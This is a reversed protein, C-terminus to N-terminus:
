DEYTQEAADLDAAEVAALVDEPANWARLVKYVANLSFGAAVLRRMVRASEKDNTPPKMRKRELFQRALAEENVNEYATNLTTTVLEEHVGKRQLDQQVRRRGFKAGEQRLRTYDTAFAQDDLYRQAQLRLIVADIRAEGAESKEVRTRMLRRLEAVTRMRRGLAGIAYEYLAPEDLPERIRPTKWAM